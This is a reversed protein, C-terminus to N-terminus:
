RLVAEPDPEFVDTEMGIAQLRSALHQQLETEQRPPDGPNRATTDFEILTSALAVLKEEEAAITDCVRREDETLAM